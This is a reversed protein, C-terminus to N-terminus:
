LLSIRLIFFAEMLDAGLPNLLVMYNVLNSSAVCITKEINEATYCQSVLHTLINRGEENQFKYLLSASIRSKQTRFSTHFKNESLRLSFHLFQHDRPITRFSFHSADLSGISLMVKTVNDYDGTLLHHGFGCGALTDEPPAQVEDIMGFADFTTSAVAPVTIKM